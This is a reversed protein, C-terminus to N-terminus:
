SDAKKGLWSEFAFLLVGVAIGLLVIVAIRVALLTGQIGAEDWGRDAMTRLLYHQLRFDVFWMVAVLVAIAILASRVLLAIRPMPVCLLLILITAVTSILWVSAFLLFGRLAPLWPRSEDFAAKPVSRNADTQREGRVGAVPQPLVALSPDSPQMRMQRLRDLYMTRDHAPWIHAITCIGIPFLVVIVLVAAVYDRLWFSPRKGHGDAEGWGIPSDEVGFYRPLPQM